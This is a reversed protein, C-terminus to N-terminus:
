GECPNSNIQSPSTAAEASGKEHVAELGAVMLERMAHARSAIRRSFRWDDIRAVLSPEILMQCRTTRGESM